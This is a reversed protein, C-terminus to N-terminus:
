TSYNNIFNLYQNAQNKDLNKSDLFYILLDECNYKAINYLKPSLDLDDLEIDDLYISIKTLNKATIKIKQLFLIKLFHEDTLSYFITKKHFLNKFKEPNKTIIINGNFYPYKDTSSM